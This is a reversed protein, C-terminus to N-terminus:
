QAANVKFKNLIMMIFAGVFLGVVLLLISIVVDNMYIGGNYRELFM